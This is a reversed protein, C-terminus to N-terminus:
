IESIWVNRFLKKQVEGIKKGSNETFPTGKGRQGIWFIIITTTNWLHWLQTGFIRIKISSHIVGSFLIQKGSFLHWGSMVGKLHKPINKVCCCNYPARHFRGHISNENEAARRHSVNVVSFLFVFDPFLSWVPFTWLTLKWTHIHFFEYAQFTPFNKKM